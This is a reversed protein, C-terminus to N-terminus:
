EVDDVNSVSLVKLGKEKIAERTTDQVLKRTLEEQIDKRYKAEVVNPPAKGPRFGPIRVAQRFSKVIENWEQKVREPPLEVRMSALCNPLQEVEVNM